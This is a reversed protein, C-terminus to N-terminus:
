KPKMKLHNETVSMLVFNLDVFYLTLMQKRCFWLNKIHLPVKGQVNM